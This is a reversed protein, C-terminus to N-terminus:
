RQVAVRRLAPVRYGGKIRHVPFPGLNMIACHLAGGSEILDDANIAIINWNPLLARYTTIAKHQQLQTSESYVPVFLIHNAYIVNTYTRWIGDQNSPMPVRHVKLRKGPLQVSSLRQANRQLVDSNTADDLADYQGVVVCDPATFTAFMDVHGTSENELPELFVVQEAGYYARLAEEVLNADFEPNDDLLKTTTLLLGQGNSIVNGGEIKLQADVIPISASEAVFLPVVEDQDRGDAGYYTDLVAISRNRKNALVVPGYDRTWMTDHPVPAFQIINSPIGSQVLVDRAADYEEDDIYLAVIRIRRAAVRLVDRVAESCCIAQCSIMLGSQHEFEGPMRLNDLQNARLLERLILFRDSPTEQVGSGFAPARVGVEFRPVVRNSQAATLRGHGSRVQRRLVEDPSIDLPSYDPSPYELPQYDLSPYDPAPPPPVYREGASLDGVFCGRLLWCLTALQVFRAVISGSTRHTLGVQLLSSNAPGSGTTIVNSVSLHPPSPWGPDCRKTTLSCFTGRRRETKSQTADAPDIM